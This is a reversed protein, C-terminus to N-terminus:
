HFKSLERLHLKNKASPHLKERVLCAHLWHQLEGDTALAVKTMVEDGVGDCGMLNECCPGEGGIGDQWSM